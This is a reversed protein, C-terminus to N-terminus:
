GGGREARVIAPLVVTEVYRHIVDMANHVIRWELQEFMAEDRNLDLLRRRWFDTDLNLGPLQTRPVPSPPAVADGSPTAAAEASPAPFPLAGFAGRAPPGMLVQWAVVILATVVVCEGIIMWAIPQRSLRGM